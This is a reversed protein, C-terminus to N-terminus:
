SPAKVNVTLPIRWPSGSIPKACTLPDDECLKVVLTGTHAGVTLLPSARLTANYDYQTAGSSVTVQTTILGTEEFIGINIVQTITKSAHASITFPTSQGQVANVTVPNPTFSLWSQDATSGGGGSNSSGGGGVPTGASGGGGGCASLMLASALLAPFIHM